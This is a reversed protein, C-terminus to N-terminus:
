KSIEPGARGGGGGGQWPFCSTVETSLLSQPGMGDDLEAGTDGPDGDEAAEGETEAPESDVDELENEDLPATFCLHELVPLFSFVSPCVAQAPLLLSQKELTTIHGAV